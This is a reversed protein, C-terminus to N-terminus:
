LRRSAARLGRKRGHTERTPGREGYFIRGIRGIERLQSEKCYSATAPNEFVARFIRGIPRIKEALIRGPGSKSPLCVAFAFSNYCNAHMAQACRARACFPGEAPSSLIAPLPAAWSRAPLLLLDAFSAM